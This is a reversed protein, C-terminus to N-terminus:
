HFRGVVSEVSSQGMTVSALDRGIEVAAAVFSPEAWVMCDGATDHVEVPSNM